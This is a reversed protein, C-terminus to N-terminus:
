GGGVGQNLTNMCANYADVAEHWANSANVCQQGEGDVACTAIANNGATIMANYQTGCGGAMPIVGLLTRETKAATQRFNEAANNILLTEAPHASAFARYASLSAVSTSAGWPNKRVILLQDNNIMSISVTTVVSGDRVVGHLSGDRMITVDREYNSGALTSYTKVTGLVQSAETPQAQATGFLLVGVLVIIALSKM